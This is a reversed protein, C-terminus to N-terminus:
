DLLPLDDTTILRMRLVHEVVVARRNSAEAGKGGRVGRVGMADLRRCIYDLKRDFKRLSWGLRHAIEANPPIDAAGATPDRLRPECLAALLLRQETNVRLPAFDVTEKSTPTDGADSTTELEPPDLEFDIEYTLAGSAWRVVGGSVLRESTGPPLVVHRGDSGLITLEATRSSNELWCGDDRHAFVGIRRHMFANDPDVCVDADRGFSVRAGVTVPYSEGLFSVQLRSVVLGVNRVARIHPTSGM